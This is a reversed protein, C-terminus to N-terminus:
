LDALYLYLLHPFVTVYAQRKDYLVIFDLGRKVKGATSIARKRREHMTASQEKANASALHSIACMSSMSSPHTHARARAIRAQVWVGCSAHTAAYSLIPGLPMSCRALLQTISCALAVLVYQIYETYQVTTPEISLHSCPVPNRPWPRPRLLVTLTSARRFFCPSALWM